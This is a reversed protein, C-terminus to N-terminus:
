IPATMRWRCTNIHEKPFPYAKWELRKRLPVTSERNVEYCNTAEYTIGGPRNTFTFVHMMRGALINLLGDIYVPSDAARSDQGQATHRLREQRLCGEPGTRISGMLFDYYDKNKDIIKM